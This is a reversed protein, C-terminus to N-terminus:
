RTHGLEGAPCDLWLPKASLDMFFGMKTKRLKGLGNDFANLSTARVIQQDLMNWRNVVRNSFFYKWCDQTCRMKSLKLTHCRTEKNNKDLTFLDQLGIISKRQSIKFVEILDQRNRREELTWLKLCRLREVYSLGEMNIIM